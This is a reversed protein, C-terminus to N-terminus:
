RDDNQPRRYITVGIKGHRKTKTVAFDGVQEPLKLGAEHECIIVGRETMMEVLAPLSKQVLRREYPPDLLAIDFKEASGRLFATNPMNIVEAKDSFGVHELNQRIYAVSERSSDVFVAKKAGRSLAEIGLQGTGAFMDLVVSGEIEFQIASFMAEKIGDATPRVDLGEPAKLRRGKALGTIVRMKIIM